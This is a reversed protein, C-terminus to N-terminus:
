DDLMYAIIFLGIMSFALALKVATGLIIGAWTGLGARGAQSADRRVLYEGAAAGGFPGIIIGTFGFLMGIIAGIMSGAVAWRSAGVRKVGLTTALVDSLLALVTLGALISITVWGVSQFGDAWAALVLGIFVLVVGPLAPLVIGAVGATILLVAAIWLVTSL